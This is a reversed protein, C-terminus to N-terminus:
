KFIGFDPVYARGFGGFSTIGFYAKTCRFPEFGTFTSSFFERGGNGGWKWFGGRIMWYSIYPLYQIVCWIGKGIGKGLDM